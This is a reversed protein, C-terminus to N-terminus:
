FVKKIYKCFFWIKNKFTKPFLFTHFQYVFWKLPQGDIWKASSIIAFVFQALVVLDNLLAGILRGSPGKASYGFSYIVRAVIVGLGLASAVIPFYIGGIFLFALCSAIWELYNYHVRQASNFMFWQQYSLNRSYYGNGTDPYGGKQIEEGFVRQHEAGFNQKM